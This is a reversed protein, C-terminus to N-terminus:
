CRAYNNKSNDTMHLLLDDLCEFPEPGMGKTHEGFLM